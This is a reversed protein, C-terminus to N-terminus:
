EQTRSLLSHGHMVEQNGERKDSHEHRGSNHSGLGASAFWGVFDLLWDPRDCREAGREARTVQKGTSDSCSEPRM